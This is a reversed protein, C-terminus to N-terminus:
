ARTWHGLNYYPINLRVIPEPSFYQGNYDKVKAREEKKGRRRRSKVWKPYSRLSFASKKRSKEALTRDRFGKLNRNNTLM